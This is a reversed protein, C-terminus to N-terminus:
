IGASLSSYRAPPCSHENEQWCSLPMASTEVIYPHPQPPWTGLLVRRAGEQWGKIFTSAPVTVARTGECFSSYDSM